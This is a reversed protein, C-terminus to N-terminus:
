GSAEGPAPEEQTYSEGDIPGFVIRYGRPLPVEVAEPVEWDGILGQAIAQQVAEDATEAFVVTSHRIGEVHYVKM